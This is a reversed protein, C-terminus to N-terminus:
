HTDYSAILEDLDQGGTYQVNEDYQIPVDIVRVCMVKWDKTASSRGCTHDANRSNITTSALNCDAGASVPDDCNKVRWCKRQTFVETTAESPLGETHAAWNQKQQYSWQEDCNGEGDPCTGICHGGVSYPEPTHGEIYNPCKLPYPIGWIAGVQLEGYTAPRCEEPGLGVTHCNDSCAAKLTEDIQTDTKGKIPYGSVTKWFLFEPPLLGYDIPDGNSDVCTSLIMLADMLKELAQQFNEMLSCTHALHLIEGILAQEHHQAETVAEEISDLTAQADRLAAEAIESAAIAKDLSQQTLSIEEYNECSDDKILHEYEAILRTTGLFTNQYMLQFFKKQLACSSNDNWCIEDPVPNPRPYYDPYNRYASGNVQLLSPSSAKFIHKRCIEEKKACDEVKNALLMTQKVNQDNKKFVEKDPKQPRAKPPSLEPEQSTANVQLFAAAATTDSDTGGLLLRSSVHGTYTGAGAALMNLAKLDSILKFYELKCLRELRACEAVNAARNAHLQEIEPGLAALEAQQEDIIALTQTIEKAMKEVFALVKAYQGETYQLQTSCDDSSSASSIAISNAIAEDSQDIRKKNFDKLTKTLMTKTKLAASLQRKRRKRDLAKNAAKVGAASAKMVAKASLDKAVGQALEAKGALGIEMNIKDETRLESLKDRIQGAQESVMDGHLFSVDSKSQLMASARKKQTIHGVTDVDAFPSVCGQSSAQEVCEGESPPTAAFVSWWVFVLTATHLRLLRAPM